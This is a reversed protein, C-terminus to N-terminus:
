RKAPSCVEFTLLGVWPCEFALRDDGPVGVGAGIIICSISAVLPLKHLIALADFAGCLTALIGFAADQVLGNPSITRLISPFSLTDPNSPELKKNM